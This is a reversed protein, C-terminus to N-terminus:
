QTSRGRCNVKHRWSVKSGCCDHQQKLKNWSSEKRTGGLGKYKAIRTQDRDGTSTMLSLGNDTKTTMWWPLSTKRERM